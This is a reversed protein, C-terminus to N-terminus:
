PASLSKRIAEAINRLLAQEFSKDPKACANTDLANVIEDAFKRFAETSAYTERALRLARLSDICAQYTDM